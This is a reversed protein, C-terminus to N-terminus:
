ALACVVPLLTFCAVASQSNFISLTLEFISQAPLSFCHWTLESTWTLVGRRTMLIGEHVSLWGPGWM